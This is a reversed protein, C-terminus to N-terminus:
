SGSSHASATSGFGSRTVRQAGIANNGKPVAKAQADVDGAGSVRGGSRGWSYAPGYWYGRNRGDNIAECKKEDGWDQVCKVRSDYVDRQMADQQSDGCGQMSAAGILVLTISTSARRRGAPAPVALPTESSATQAYELRDVQRRVSAKFM